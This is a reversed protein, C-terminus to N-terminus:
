TAVSVQHPPTASASNALQPRFLQSSSTTVAPVAQQPLSSQSTETPQTQWTTDDRTWWTTDDEGDLAWSGDVWASDDELSSVIGYHDVWWDYSDDTWNSDGECYEDGEPWRDEEGTAWSNEEADTAGVGMPQPGNHHGKGLKGKGAGEGRYYGKGRDYRNGKYCRGEGHEKERTDERSGTGMDKAVAMAQVSAKEQVKTIEETREKTTREKEKEIVM